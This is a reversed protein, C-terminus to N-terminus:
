ANARPHISNWEQNVLVRDLKESILKDGLSKNSRTMHHGSYTLDDLESHFCCDELEEMHGAWSLDGGVKEDHFRVVNFDGQLIWPDNQVSSSIRVIDEWLKARGAVSNYGYIFSSYFSARTAQITVKTHIIQASKYISQVDLIEPNWTVWIRGSPHHEYNFLTDWSPLTQTTLQISKSSHM